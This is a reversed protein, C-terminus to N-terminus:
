RVRRAVTVIHPIGILFTHNQMTREVAQLWRKASSPEVDRGMIAHEAWVAAVGNATVAQPDDLLLLHGRVREIYLGAAACARATERAALPSAYQTAASALVRSTLSPKPGAAFCSYPDYDALVLRGGVDLVRAMESIIRSIPSVHLLLKEAVVADFSRSEFPLEHCDAAVFSTNTFGLESARRQAISILHPNIDLGTVRGTPGVRDVLPELLMGPGCGVELVEADPYVHLEDLMIGRLEDWRPDFLTELMGAAILNTQQPPAQALREYLDNRWADQMM